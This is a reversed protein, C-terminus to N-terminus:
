DIAVVDMIAETIINLCATPQTAASRPWRPKSMLKGTHAEVYPVPAASATGPDTSAVDAVDYALASRKNPMPGAIISKGTRSM